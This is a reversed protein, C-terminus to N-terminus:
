QSEIVYLSLNGSQAAEPDDAAELVATLRFNTGDSQYGYYRDPAQPDTPVESLYPRLANQLAESQDLRLAEEAVPYGFPTASAAYEALAVAIRRLDAKRAADRGAASEIAGVGQDSVWASLSLENVENLTPVAIAEGTGFGSFELRSTLEATAEGLDFPGALEISAPLGSGAVLFSTAKLLDNGPQLAPAFLAAVTRAPVAHEYGKTRVGDVTQGGARSGAAEGEALAGLFEPWSFPQVGQLPLEAVPAKTWTDSQAPIRVYLDATTAILEIELPQGTALLPGFRGEEGVAPAWILRASIRSADPAIDHTFSSTLTSQGHDTTLLLSLQGTVQYTPTAALAAQSETLAEHPRNSLGWFREIGLTVVGAESLVYLGVALACAIVGVLM